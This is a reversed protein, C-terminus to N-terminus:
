FINQAMDQRIKKTSGVDFRINSPVMHLYEIIRISLLRFFSLPLILATYTLTFFLVINFIHISFFVFIFVTSTLVILSSVFEFILKTRQVFNPNEQVVMRITLTYVVLKSFPFRFFFLVLIISTCSLLLFTQFSSFYTDKVTYLQYRQFPNEFLNIKSSIVDLILTGIRIYEQIKIKSIFELHLFSLLIINYNQIIWTGNM